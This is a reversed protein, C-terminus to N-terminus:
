SMEVHLLLHCVKQIQFPQIGSAGVLQTFGGLPVRSSSTVFMLFRSRQEQSFGRLARWFWSVEPDTSKYGSLQTANKLEDVDVMTVGSILLELQEPEFIQM